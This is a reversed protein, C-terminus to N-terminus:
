SSNGYVELYPAKYAVRAEGPIVDIKRRIAKYIQVAKNRLSKTSMGTNLLVLIQARTMSPREEFDVNSKGDQKVIPVLRYSSYKAM